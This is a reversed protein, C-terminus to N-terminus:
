EEPELILDKPPDGHGNWQAQQLPIDDWGESYKVECEPDYDKLIAILDKIKM